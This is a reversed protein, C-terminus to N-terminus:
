EGPVDVGAKQLRAVIKDRNKTRGLKVDLARLGADDLKEASPEVTEAKDGSDDEAAEAPEPPEDTAPDAELEEQVIEEPTETAEDVKVVDLEGDKEVVKVEAEGGDEDIEVITICNGLNKAYLELVDPHSEIEGDAHVKVPHGYAVWESGAVEPWMLKLKKM